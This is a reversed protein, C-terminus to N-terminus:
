ETAWRHWGRAVRRRDLTHEGASSSWDFSTLIIRRQKKRRLTKGFSIWALWFPDHEISDSTGYRLSLRRRQEYGASAEVSCASSEIQSHKRGVPLIPDMSWRRVCAILIQKVCVVVLGWCRLYVSSYDWRKTTEMEQDGASKGGRSLRRETEKTNLPQNFM